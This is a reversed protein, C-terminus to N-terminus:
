QQEPGSWLTGARVGVARMIERLLPVGFILFLALSGAGHVVIGGLNAILPYSAILQALLLSLPASLLSYLLSWGLEAVYLVAFRAVFHGVDFIFLHPAAVLDDMSLDALSGPELGRERELVRLQLDALARKVVASLRALYWVGLALATFGLLLLGTQVPSPRVAGIQLETTGHTLTTIMISM